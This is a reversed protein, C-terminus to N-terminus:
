RLPFSAGCHRPMPISRSSQRYGSTLLGHMAVAGGPAASLALLESGFRVRWAGASRLELRLHSGELADIREPNVFTPASRRHIGASEGDGPYELRHHVWEVRGQIAARLADTARQPLGIALVVLALAFTLAVIMAVAPSRLAVIDAARMDRTLAAADRAVRM